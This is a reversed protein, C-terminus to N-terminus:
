ADIVMERQVYHVPTLGIKRIIQLAEKFGKGIDGPIHADSGLTVYRGGLKYYGEYINYLNQAAEPNHIRKTNIEIVKGKDLLATFVQDYRVKYTSYKIDKEKLPCYRSPFDIHGLSDFFDCKDIVIVTYKLFNGMIEESPIGQQWFSSSYTDYGYCVHVSGICFDNRTDSAVRRGLARTNVTLGIELGLLLGATKYKAYENFYQDTDAVLLIDDDCEYDVHETVCLGLGLKSAAALAEEPNMQSDASFRTHIHSDYIM